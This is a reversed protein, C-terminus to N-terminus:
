ATIIITPIRGHIGCNIRFLAQSIPKNTFNFSLYELIFMQIHSWTWALIFSGNRTKCFIQFFFDFLPFVNGLKVSFLLLYHFLCFLIRHTRTIIRWGFCFYELICECRCKHGFILSVFITSFLSSWCWTLVFVLIFYYFGFFIMDSATPEAAVFYFFRGFTYIIDFEAIFSSIFNM